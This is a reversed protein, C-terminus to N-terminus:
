LRGVVVEITSQEADTSELAKGIVSGISPNAEARAYGGGASVMMDGKAVPGKVKCPVRGSLALDIVHDGELGANMLHAPRTSVVGAVKKCADTDCLTVEADGGFMLVTGPEYDADATYKEALDAYFATTATLSGSGGVNLNGGVAAGGTVILAGSSTNTSATSATIELNGLVFDAASYTSDTTDVTTTPEPILNDFLKWKGDTVDRFIGTHRTNAGDNYQGVLGQDVSDGANTSAVFIFPDTVALSDSSTTTFTGNVIFDGTVQMDGGVFLNEAIGAGGSVVLSGSSTSTSTTTSTAYVTDGVYLKQTIGVGGAVQLAGTTTSSATISNNIEVRKNGNTVFGLRSTSPFYIGTSNQSVHNITPSGESGAQFSTTDLTVTQLSGARYVVTISSSDAPVAGAGFTLATGTATYDTTPIQLTNGVQVQIDNETGVSRDLTFSRNSGDGTFTQQSSILLTEKPTLGIYAM